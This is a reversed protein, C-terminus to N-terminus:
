QPLDMRKLLDAYRPDMRLSDFDPTTKIYLLSGSKEGYAKELWTFSQEKDGLVAYYAAIVAPDIYIHKAQL